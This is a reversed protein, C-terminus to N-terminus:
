WRVLLFRFLPSVGLNFRALRGEKVLEALKRQREPAELHSFDLTSWPLPIDKPIIQVPQGLGKHKFAARLNAHRSLVGKVAEQLTREELPGGLNLAIQINYVDLGEADYSAHFLIGEQVPSLPL